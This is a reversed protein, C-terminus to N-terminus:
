EYHWSSYLSHVKFGEVLVAINVIIIFVYKDLLCDFNGLIGANLNAPLISDVHFLNM